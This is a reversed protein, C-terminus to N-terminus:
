SGMIKRRILYDFSLKGPGRVLFLLLFMGWYLHNQRGADSLDPYSIVAMFNLIFLAATGFRGALGLALLVSGGLEVATAAYAAIEPPLVPVQYIYTFLSTSDWSAIKTLGSKWFVNAVYLRIGLEVLPTLFDLGRIALVPVQLVRSLLAM